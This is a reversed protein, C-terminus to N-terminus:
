FPPFHLTLWREGTIITKQIPIEMASWTSVSIVIIIADGHHDGGAICQNYYDNCSDYCSYANSPAQPKHSDIAIYHVGAIISGAIALCIMFLVLRALPSSACQPVTM